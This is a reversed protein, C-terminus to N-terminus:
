RGGGRGVVGGDCVSPGWDHLRCRLVLLAPSRSSAARRELSWAVVVVVDRGLLRIGRLTLVLCVGRLTLVLCVGRLAVVRVAECVSLGLARGLLAVIRGLLVVAGADVVHDAIWANIPGVLLV